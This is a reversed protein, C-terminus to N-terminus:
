DNATRWRQIADMASLKPVVQNGYKGTTAHAAVRIACWMVIRRPLLWALKMLIKDLMPKEKLTIRESM